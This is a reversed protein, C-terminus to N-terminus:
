RSAAPSCTIAREERCVQIRPAFSGRAIQRSTLKTVQRPSRPPTACNVLDNVNGQAIGPIQTLDAYAVASKAAPDTAANWLAGSNTSPYGAVNLDLLGGEDYIVYAYRGILSDTKPCNPTAPRPAKTAKATSRSGSSKTSFAKPPPTPSSFRSTGASKQLPVDMANTATTSGGDARDTADAYLKTGSYSLLNAYQVNNVNALDTDTREPTMKAPNAVEYITAENTTIVVSNTAM